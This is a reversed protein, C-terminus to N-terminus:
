RAAPLSLLEHWTPMAVQNNSTLRANYLPLRKLAEVNGLIVPILVNATLLSSLEKYAPVQAAFNQLFEDRFSV